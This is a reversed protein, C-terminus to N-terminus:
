WRVATFDVPRPALGAVRGALARMRRAMEEAPLRIRGGHGPLLWEFRLEGAVRALSAAQETISYWTVADAVALDDDARSWYLSDGTFCYRDDVLYLMSGETHGPLPHAYVGDVIRVPATGSPVLDADPASDLDGQHICLRAGFRDAYRRGHAAHDAHTLLVHTVPGFEAYRAALPESWRPTDVMLLGGPRRVLYANAGATHSSNHGCLMVTEDLAVPFPDWAPDLRKDALRISRTPCAFAAARVAAVEAEDRPQRVVESRGNVEAILGPALQRAVDCNFCRGDVYWGNEM